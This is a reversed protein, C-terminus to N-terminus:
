VTEKNKSYYEVIKKILGNITYEDPLITVKVKKAEIADKTTPGIAAVDYNLFYQYPNKIGAIQLFNEFTSPSTFIFLDVGSSQLQQLNVKISEGSPISVNYVPV